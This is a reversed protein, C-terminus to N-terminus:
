ATKNMIAKTLSLGWKREAEKSLELLQQSVSDKPTSDLLQGVTTLEDELTKGNFDVSLKLSVFGKDNQKPVERYRGEFTGSFDKLNLQLEM